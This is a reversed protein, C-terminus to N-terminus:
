NSLYDRHLQSKFETDLLLGHQNNVHSEQELLVCLQKKVQKFSELTACGRM